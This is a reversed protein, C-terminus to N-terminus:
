SNVTINTENIGCSQKEPSGTYGATGPLDSFVVITLWVGFSMVYLQCDICCSTVESYSFLFHTFLICVQHM